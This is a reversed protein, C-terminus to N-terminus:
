DEKPYATEGTWVSTDKGSKPFLEANKEECTAESRDNWHGREPVGILHINSKRRSDEMDRLRM